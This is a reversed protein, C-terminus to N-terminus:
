CPDLKIPLKCGAKRHVGEPSNKSVDCNKTYEGVGM